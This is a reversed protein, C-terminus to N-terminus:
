APIGRGGDVAERQADGGALHQREETGGAAALRRREPEHGAELRRVGTDDLDAALRHRVRDPPAAPTM